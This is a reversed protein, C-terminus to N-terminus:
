KVTVGVHVNTWCCQFGGGGPGSSDNAEARLVYEGPAGFTAAVAARGDTLDVPPRTHDFTVTGPGRFKSWAVTVPPPEEGPPAGPASRKRAPPAINLRPGEDSVWVTLQAPQGIAASYHAAVATPPGTFSPGGREFRFVPPTNKQADEFPEVVWEPRTHLTITNTFGNSVITWALKQPGADDPVKITFVGWQRGTLFHTPQGRDPGGPEIRNDPGIPVDLEQETNRNFYGVLLRTAGDAGRYWGEFAGTVSSGRERIPHSLPLASPTQGVGIPPQSPPMAQQAAAIGVVGIAAALAFRARV